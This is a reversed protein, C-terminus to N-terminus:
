RRRTLIFEEFLAFKHWLLVTLLHTIICTEWIGPMEENNGQNKEESALNPHVQWYIYNVFHVKKFNKEILCSTRGAKNVTTFAPNWFWLCFDHISRVFRRSKSFFRISIMILSSFPLLIKLLYFDTRHRHTQLLHIEVPFHSKFSKKKLIGFKLCSLSFLYFKVGLIPSKKKINLIRFTTQYLTMLVNWELKILYLLVFM